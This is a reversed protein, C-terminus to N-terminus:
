DPLATLVVNDRYHGSAEDFPGGCTVLVLRPQGRLSYIDSYKQINGLTVTFIRGRTRDLVVVGYTQFEDLAELFQQVYATRGWRVETALPVNLESIWTPAGSARAFVVVGRARPEYKSLWNRVTVRYTVWQYLESMRTGLAM